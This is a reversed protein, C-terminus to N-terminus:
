AQFSSNNPIFSNHNHYLKISFRNTTSGNFNANPGFSLKRNDLTLLINRLGITNTDVSMEVNMSNDMMHKNANLNTNQNGM